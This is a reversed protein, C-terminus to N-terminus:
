GLGAGLGQGDAARELGVRQEVAVVHHGDGHEFGVEGVLEVGDDQDLHGIADVRRRDAGAEFLRDGGVRVHGDAVRCRHLLVLGLLDVLQQGDDVGQQGQGHDDGHEADDVGEHEGDDFAGRSSPRSRATPITRRWTRLMIRPSDTTM